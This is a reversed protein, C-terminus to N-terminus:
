KSRERAERYATTKPNSADWRPAKEDDAIRLLGLAIMRDVRAMNAYDIREWEDDLGHYDPFDYAVSVTHAPVGARALAANDSANFYADSNRPHRELRVGVAEGADRLATTVDSYNFGTVNAAEVRPGETDDTRGLQELNVAAVTKALPVVPHAAYHTSGVLGHEEGYFAVFLLSRKPRPGMTALASAIEIVSVTGSGDDNAGNFIRDGDADKPGIGLHDYHATLMVYTEKLELHSGELLGVVNRVRATRPRPEGVAVTATAGTTGVPLGAFADALEASHVAITPPGGPSRGPGGRPTARRLGRVSGPDADVDVILAPKLQEMRGLFALRARNAAAIRDRPVKYPTPVEALVVKGGVAEATLAALAVADGADVKVAPSASLDIGRALGASLASDGFRFTRDGIKIEVSAGGPDPALYDWEATQFYGDDGMPKLGVRRFQAAIYEAAIDLGRSPTGRGELLDSALFSLHGRLSDPSIRDLAARAAPAPEDARAASSALAALSLLASACRIPM